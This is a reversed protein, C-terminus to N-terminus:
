SGRFMFAFSFGGIPTMPTPQTPRTVAAQKASSPWGTKAISMSSGLDLRQAAALHRDVLRAQGLQDLSVALPECKVVSIPSTISAARSSKQQTSM